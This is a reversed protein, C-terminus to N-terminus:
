AATVPRSKISAIEIKAVSPAGTPASSGSSSCACPAANPNVFTLGASTATEAFDIVIGELLTQTDPPLFLTLGNVTLVEDGDFPKDEVTFESSYGSCGGPAVTLRFGAGESKGSFRVFRSMFKHAAPNITVNPLM